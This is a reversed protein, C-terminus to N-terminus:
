ARDRNEGGYVEDGRERVRASNIGQMYESIEECAQAMHDIYAWGNRKM